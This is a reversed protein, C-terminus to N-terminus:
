CLICNARARTGYTRGHVQGKNIFFLTIAYLWFKSNRFKWVFQNKHM